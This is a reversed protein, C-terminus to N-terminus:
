NWSDYGNQERKKRAQAEYRTRNNRFKAKLAKLKKIREDDEQIPNKPAPAALLPAKRGNAIQENLKANEFTLESIKLTLRDNEDILKTIKNELEAIKADKSDNTETSESIDKTSDISEVIEKKQDFIPNKKKAM